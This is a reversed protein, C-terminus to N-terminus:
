THEVIYKEYMKAFSDDNSRRTLRTYDAKIKRSMTAVFSSNKFVNKYDFFNDHEEAYEQLDINIDPTMLEWLKTLTKKLIDKKDGVIFEKPNELIRLGLPDERMMESLAYAFFFIALGYDRIKENELLRTNENVLDYLLKGFYINEAKIKRSFIKTYDDGFLKQKLHTAYCNLPDTLSGM